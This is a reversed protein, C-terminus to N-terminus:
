AIVFHISGSIGYNTCLLGLFCFLFEGIAVYRFRLVFVYSVVVNDGCVCKEKKPPIKLLISTLLYRTSNNIRESITM